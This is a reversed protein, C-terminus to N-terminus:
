FFTPVQLLEKYSISTKDSMLGVDQSRFVKAFTAKKRKELDKIFPKLGRYNSM